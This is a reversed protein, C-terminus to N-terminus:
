RFCGSGLSMRFMYKVDSVGYEKINAAEVNSKSAMQKLIVKCKMFLLCFQEIESANVQIKETSHWCPNLLIQLFEDDKIIIIDARRNVNSKYLM